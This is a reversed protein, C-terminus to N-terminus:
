ERVVRPFRAAAELDDLALGSRVYQRSADRFPQFDWAHSAGKRLAADVLRRRRQSARVEADLAAFDWRRGVEARFEALEPAQTAGGALNDREGPDRRLDYLQDPDPPSHIFKLAGRRIMVIPAIAGEALYEGIAEDHGVWGALHPALSKGDISRGLAAADGGALDILTPLLDLLSVSAGVRGPAFRDAGAVVLPVRSAGEFFSMKYWLGREGLMEGHDSALIVITDEGLGSSRLAQMLRGLNDDVYSIAALYARRANRVQADTVPEADIACIHRLRISHPDIFEPAPAPLDVDGERYLDWYRQPAAFPDHPHTFSAVLLFPRRDNSRAVDFIARESTFAVEDDFDLQNTRLCVGAEAVSSMNHYWSPRDNPHDWDPTWGYDAPYIDTTLREEFGHLQDPGCFHM